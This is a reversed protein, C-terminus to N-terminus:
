WFMISQVEELHFQLLHIKELCPGVVNPHCFLVHTVDHFMVTDLPAKEVKNLITCYKVSCKM